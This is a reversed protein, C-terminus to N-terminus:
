TATKNMKADISLPGAGHVFVFCLAGLLALNKFFHAMNAAAAAQKMEWYRHFFLTAALRFIALGIVAWRAKWGLVLLAGGGIELVIALLLLAEPSPVGFETMYSVYFAHRLIQLVGYILSLM